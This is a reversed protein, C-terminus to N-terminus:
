EGGAAEICKQAQHSKWAAYMGLGVGGTVMEWSPRTFLSWMGGAAWGCAFGYLSEWQAVRRRLKILGLESV